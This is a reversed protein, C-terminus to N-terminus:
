SEIFKLMCEFVKLKRQRNSLELLQQSLELNVNVYPIKFEDHLEKLLTTKGSGLKGVVLILRYYCLHSEEIASIIQQKIM